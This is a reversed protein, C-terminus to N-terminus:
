KVFESFVQSIKEYNTRAIEIKSLQEVINERSFEYKNGDADETYNQNQAVAKINNKDAQLLEAKRGNGNQMEQYLSDFKNTTFVQHQDWSFLLSQGLEHQYDLTKNILEIFNSIDNRTLYNGTRTVYSKVAVRLNELDANTIPKEYAQAIALSYKDLEYSNLSEFFSQKTQKNAQNIRDKSADTSGAFFFLWFFFCFLLIGLWAEKFFGLVKKERIASIFIGIGGFFMIGLILAKVGFWVGDWANSFSVNFGFLHSLGWIMLAVIAMILFFIFFYSTLAIALPTGIFLVVLGWIISGQIFLKIALGVMSLGACAVFIFQLINFVWFGAILGGWGGGTLVKKFISKRYIPSEQQIEGEDIREAIVSLSLQQGCNCIEASDDYVQGCGSCKKM